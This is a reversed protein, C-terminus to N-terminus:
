LIQRDTQRKSLIKRNEDNKGPGLAEQKKRSIHKEKNRCRM